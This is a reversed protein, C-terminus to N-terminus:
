QTVPNSAVGTVVHLKGNGVAITRSNDPKESLSAKDRELLMLLRRQNRRLRSPSPKKKKIDPTRKPKSKIELRIDVSLIGSKVSFSALPLLDAFMCSIAPQAKSWFLEM